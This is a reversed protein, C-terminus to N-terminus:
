RGQSWGTCLASCISVPLGCPTRSALGGAGLLVEESRKSYEKWLANSSPYSGQDMKQNM